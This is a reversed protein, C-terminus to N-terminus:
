ARLPRCRHCRWLPQPRLLQQLLAHPRMQQLHATVHLAQKRTPTGYCRMAGGGGGHRPTASKTADSASRVSSNAHERARWVDVCRCAAGLRAVRDAWVDRQLKVALGVGVACTAGGGERESGAEGAAYTYAGRVAEGACVVHHRMHRHADCRHPDRLRPGLPHRTRLRPRPMGLRPIRDGRGGRRRPFTKHVILAHPPAASPHTSYTRACTYMRAHLQARARGSLLRTANRTREAHLRPCRVASRRQPVTRPHWGRLRGRDRCRDTQTRM